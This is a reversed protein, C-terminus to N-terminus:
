GDNRLYASLEDKALTSEKDECAESAFDLDPNMSNPEIEKYFGNPLPFPLM